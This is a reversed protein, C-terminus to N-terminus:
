RQSAKVHRDLAAAEEEEGCICDDLPEGCETCCEVLEAAEWPDFETVVLPKGDMTFKLTGTVSSLQAEDMVESFLKAMGTKKSDVYGLPLPDIWGAEALFLEEQDGALVEYLSSHASAPDRSFGHLFVQVANADYENDPQRRLELDAGSPLMNIVDKAPPRFHMGVIPAEFKPM